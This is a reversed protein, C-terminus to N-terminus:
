RIENEPQFHEGFQRINWQLIFTSSSGHSAFNNLKVFLFFFYDKAIFRDVSREKIMSGLDARLDIKAGTAFFFFFFVLLALRENREEHFQVLLCAIQLCLERIWLSSFYDRWPGGVDHM